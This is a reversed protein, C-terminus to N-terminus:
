NTITQLFTPITGCMNLSATFFDVISVPKLEVVTLLNLHALQFLDQHTEVETIPVEDIPLKIILSDFKHLVALVANTLSRVM